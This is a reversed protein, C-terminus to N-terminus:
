KCKFKAELISHNAKNMKVVMADDHGKLDSIVGVKDLVAHSTVNM